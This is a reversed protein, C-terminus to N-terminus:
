NSVTWTSNKRLSVAGLGKLISEFRIKAQFSFQQELLELEISGCTVARLYKLIINAEPSGTCTRTHTCSYRIHTYTQM